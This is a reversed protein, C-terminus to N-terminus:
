LRLCFISYFAHYASLVLLKPLVHLVPLHPLVYQVDLVCLVLLVDLITPVPLIDLITPVLLIPLMPLVHMYAPLVPRAPPNIILLHQLYYLCSIFFVSLKYLICCFVGDVQWLTFKLEVPIRDFGYGYQLFIPCM